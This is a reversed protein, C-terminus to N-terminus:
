NELVLSATMAFPARFTAIKEFILSLSMNAYIVM